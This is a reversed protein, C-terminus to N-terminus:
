FRSLFRVVNLLTKEDATIPTDNVNGLPGPQGTAANSASAATPAPAVASVVPEAPTPATGPVGADTDDNGDADLDVEVQDAEEADGTAKDDFGDEMEVVTEEYNVEEAVDQGADKTAEVTEEIVDEPEDVIEKKKRKRTKKAVEPTLFAQKLLDDFDGDVVVVDKHPSGAEEQLDEDGGEEAEDDNVEEVQEVVLEETLDEDDDELEMETEDIVELVEETEDEEVVELLEASEIEEVVELVEPEVAVAPEYLSEKDTWATRQEPTMNPWPVEELISGMEEVFDIAENIAEEAVSPDYPNKDFGYLVHFSPEIMFFVIYTELGGAGQGTAIYVESPESIHEGVSIKVKNMGTHVRVLSEPAVPVEKVDSLLDYM